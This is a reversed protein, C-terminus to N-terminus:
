KWHFPHERDFDPRYYEPALLDDQVLLNEFGLKQALDVVRLYERATIRRSLLPHRDAKNTPYYQAMLGLTVNPGVAERLWRLSAESDALDNPLVLHRIILGRRAMGDPGLKLPGPGVQRWMEVISARAAGVYGHIRSLERATEDDAYKLDPLYIDIIGDLLRLAEPSDYSNTNYVLPLTLGRPAAIALAEVIQAVYHTPSVFNINHCGRAQLELMMEALREIEIEHPRQRDFLQSIQFNQCYVCRMNCNAFFVTGSGRSGSIMPEEGHHDCYSSVAPRRGAFCPGLKDALRDVDCLRPCLRCAPGLLARMAAARRALEGSRGLSLYAPEINQDTSIPIRTVTQM